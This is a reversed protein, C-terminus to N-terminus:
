IKEGIGQKKAARVGERSARVNKKRRLSGFRATLKKLSGEARENGRHCEGGGGESM